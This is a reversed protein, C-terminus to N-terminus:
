QYYTMPTVLGTRETVEDFSSAIRLRFSWNFVSRRAAHLRAIPSGRVASTAVPAPLLLRPVLAANVMAWMMRRQCVCYSACPTCSHIVHSSPSPPPPCLVGLCIQHHLTYASRVGQVMPGHQLDCIRVGVGPSRQAPLAQCSVPAESWDPWLHPFFTRTPYPQGEAWDPHAGGLANHSPSYTPTCLSRTQPGPQASPM